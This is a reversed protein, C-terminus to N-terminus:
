ENNDGKMAQIMAPIKLLFKIDRKPPRTVVVMGWVPTFNHARIRDFINM